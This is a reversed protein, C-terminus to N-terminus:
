KCSVKVAKKVLLIEYFFEVALSLIRINSTIKLVEIRVSQKVM